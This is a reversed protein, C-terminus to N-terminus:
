IKGQDWRPIWSPMDDKITGQHAISCLFRLDQTRELFTIGFETYISSLPKSYDPTIKLQQAATFTEVEDITTGSEPLNGTFFPYALFGYIRDKPNTAELSRAMM